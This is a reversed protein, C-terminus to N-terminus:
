YWMTAMPWGYEVSWFWWVSKQYTKGNLWMVYMVSSSLCIVCWALSQSRTFLLNLIHLNAFAAVPLLTILSYNIQNLM